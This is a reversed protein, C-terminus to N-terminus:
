ISLKDIIDKSIEQPLFQAVDGGLQCVQKIVSSSLFMNESSAAMFVTEVQDNLKKNILAQQFEDEFDSVVRLGKVIASANKIRVYDALLGMYCDVEVNPMDTICRRILEMREEVTFLSSNVKRYNSMVVVIVRDFLKASRTIIDLHGNTIPDFSGPCIAIREM